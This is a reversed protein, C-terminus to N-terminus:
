ANAEYLYIPIVNAHETGEDPHGEWDSRSPNAGILKPRVGKLMKEAPQDGWCVLPVKKQMCLPLIRGNQKAYYFASPDDKLAASLLKTAESVVTGDLGFVHLCIVCPVGDYEALYDVADGREPFTEMDFLYVDNTRIKMGLDRRGHNDFWEGIRFLTFTDLWFNNTTWGIVVIKGDSQKITAKKTM